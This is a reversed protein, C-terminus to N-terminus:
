GQGPSPVHGNPMQYQQQNPYQMGGRQQANQQALRQMDQQSMQRGPQMQAQPIGQANVQPVALHGNRTTMPLPPRAHQPMQGNMNAHQQNNVPMQPHQQAMNPAGPRQQGNHMGQAGQQAARAMAIQRQQAEIMKQRHQRQAEAIQLDREHRRKSFEQPTLMPGKPQNSNDNQTKRQAAARAAEAQKYSNNERKRALKRMADVLWLYRVNKRKEVKTPVTRRRQPTNAPQGNAQAQQQIAAVQAQYRREAAQQSQELRQFWTKFYLTKRMEAPLTELEVWREFCEWPTRREASSKYRSQLTMEDAILQWNFSYEKALNRLKQDDEWIWQSGNRFEYFATSPMPNESPPRFANNAHLRDRIPKNDPHFLAVEHDEPELSRDIRLRKSSDSDALADADDEYDYRSRKRIPKTAVPMVKAEVFKSVTTLPPFDPKQSDDTFGVLPLSELAKDLKNNKRLDCVLRTLEPAVVLTTPLAPENRPTKPSMEDEPASEGSVDLEPPQDDEHQEKSEHQKAIKRRRAGDTMMAMRADDDSCEVYEQCQSALYACVRKKANREAEFDKRMWKMENMMHDWHTVPRPPEKVKEMQRLSWKNANQLQYIRRLIRYDMREHLTTFQDETSMSKNAMKVLEGLPKTWKNQPSDHAQIRFLPELYDRDPDEAFGKLLALDNLESPGDNNTNQSPRRPSKPLAFADLHSSGVDHPHRMTMPSIRPSSPQRPRAPTRRNSPPAPSEGTIESVSKQRMAGSSVRTTMRGPTASDPQPSPMNEDNRARNRPVVTINDGDEEAQSARRETSTADPMEGDASITAATQEAAAESQAEQVVAEAHTQELPQKSDAEPGGAEERAAQEESDRAAAERAEWQLQGDATSETGMAQRKAIDKQAALLRDHEEQSQQEDERLRLDKPPLVEAHQSEPSTDPSDQPPMPTATSYAGVTSSPSSALETQAHLHNARSPKEPESRGREVAIVEDRERKREEQVDEPPLHVTKAPRQPSKVDLSDRTAPSLNTEEEPEPPAVKEPVVATDDPDPPRVAEDRRGKVNETEDPKTSAPRPLVTAAMPDPLATEDTVATKSVNGNVNPLPRPSLIPQSSPRNPNSAYISADYQLISPTPISDPDFVKLVNGSKVSSTADLDATLEAEDNGVTSLEDLRANSSLASTIHRLDRQLKAHRRQVDAISHRRSTLADDRLVDISM